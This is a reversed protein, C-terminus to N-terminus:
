KIILPTISLGEPGHTRLYYLGAPQNDVRGSWTTLNPGKYVEQIRGTLDILEIRSFAQQCNVTFAGRSPNPSIVTVMEIRDEEPTNTALLANVPQTVLEEDNMSILQFVGNVATVGEVGAVTAGAGPTTPLFGVLDEIIVLELTGIRGNGTTPNAGLRTVAINFQGAEARQIKFSQGTTGLWENAFTFTASSVLDQNYTLTFAIGNLWAGDIAQEVSVPISLTQGAVVAPDLEDGQGVRVFPANPSPPLAMALSPSSGTHTLGQNQTVTILDMIEVLGNGNADAHIFNTGNPFVGPWNAQIPQAEQTNANNRIPGLSGFAFGTPLIDYHDVIGDRNADGPFVFSQALLKTGVLSLITTLLLLSRM